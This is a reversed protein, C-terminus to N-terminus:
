PERSARNSQRHELVSVRGGGHLGFLVELDHALFVSRALEDERVHRKAVISSAPGLPQQPGPDAKEDGM